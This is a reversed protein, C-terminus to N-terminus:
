VTHIYIHWVISSDHSYVLSISLIDPIGHTDHSKSTPAYARILKDQVSAAEIGNNVFRHVNSPKMHSPVCMLVGGKNVCTVRDCRIDIQDDLLVPAHM